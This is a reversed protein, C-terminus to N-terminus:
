RAEYLAVLADGRATRRVLLSGSSRDRMVLGAAALASVHHTAASPVVQLAAALRNNTAPVDLERLIRARPLGVLADLTPEPVRPRAKVPYGVLRVVSGAVDVISARKGAVLPVLALGGDPIDLRTDHAGCCEFVVRSERVHACGILDSLVHLHAGRHGAETVHDLESALRERHVEWIPRFGAWARSAALALDRVWRNPDRAPEHWDGGTGSARCQEIEDALVDEAAVLQQLEEELTQTSTAEPLPVLASPVLTPLPTSLPALTKFDRPTLRARIVGRWAAPTDAREAGVADRMAMLLSQMPAIVVRLPRAILDAEHLYEVNMV